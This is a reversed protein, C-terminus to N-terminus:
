HVSDDVLIARVGAWSVSVSRHIQLGRELCHCRVLRMSVFRITVLDKSMDDFLDGFM